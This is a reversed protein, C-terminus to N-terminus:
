PTSCHSISQQSLLFKAVLNPERGCMDVPEFGGQRGKGSPNADPEADEPGLSFDLNPDFLLQIGAGSPAGPASTRFEAGVEKGWGCRSRQGSLRAWGPEFAGAWVQGCLYMWSYM